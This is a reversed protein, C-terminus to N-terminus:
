LHLVAWLSVGWIWGCGGPGVCWSAQAQGPSCPHCPCAPGPLLQTVGSGARIVSRGEPLVWAHEERVENGVACGAPVSCYSHVAPVYFTSTVWCVVPTEKMSVSPPSGCHKGWLTRVAVPLQCECLSAGAAEMPELTAGGAPAVSQLQCRARGKLFIFSNTGCFLGPPCYSSFHTWSVCLPIPM